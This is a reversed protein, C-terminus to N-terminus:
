LVCDYLMELDAAFMLNLRRLQKNSTNTRSEPDFATEKTAGQSLSKRLPLPIFMRDGNEKLGSTKIHVCKLVCVQVTVNMSM